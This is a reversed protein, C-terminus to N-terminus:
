GGTTYSWLLSGDHNSLMSKIMMAVLLLKWCDMM